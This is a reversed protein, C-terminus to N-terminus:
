KVSSSIIDEVIMRAWPPYEDKIIRESFWYGSSEILGKANLTDLPNIRVKIKEQGIEVLVGYGLGPRLVIIQSFVKSALDKTEPDLLLSKALRDLKKQDFHAQYKKAWLQLKTKLRQKIKDLPWEKGALVMKKVFGNLTGTDRAKKVTKIKKILRHGDQYFADILILQIEALLKDIRALGRWFNGWHHPCHYCSIEIGRKTLKPKEPSHFLNLAKRFKPHDILLQSLLYSFETPYVIALDHNKVSVKKARPIKLFHLHFIRVSQGGPAPNGFKDKTFSFPTANYGFAIKAQPPQQQYTSIVTTVIKALSRLQEKKLFRLSPTFRSSLLWLQLHPYKPPLYARKPFVLAWQNKLQQADVFGGKRKFVSELVAQGNKIRFIGLMEPAVKQRVQKPKLSSWPNLFLEKNAEYSFEYITRPFALVTKRM